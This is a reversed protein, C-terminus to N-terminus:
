TINGKKTANQLFIVSSVFWIATLISITVMCWSMTHIILRVGYFPTAFFTLLYITDWYVITYDTFNVITILVSSFCTIGAVICSIMLRRKDKRNFILFVIWFALYGITVLLNYLKAYGGISTDVLNLAYGAVVSILAFIGWPIKKM